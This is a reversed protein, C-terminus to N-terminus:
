QSRLQRTQEDGDAGARSVEWDVGPGALRDNGARRSPLNHRHVRSSPYIAMGVSADVSSCRSGCSDPRFWLSSTNHWYRHIRLLSTGEKSGTTSGTSARATVLQYFAM